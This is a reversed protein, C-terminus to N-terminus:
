DMNETYGSFGGGFAVGLVDSAGHQHVPFNIPYISRRNVCIPYDPFSRIRGSLTIILM